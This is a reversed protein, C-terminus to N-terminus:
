YGWIFIKMAYCFGFICSGLILLKAFTEVYNFGPMGRSIWYPISPIAIFALFRENTMQKKEVSKKPM